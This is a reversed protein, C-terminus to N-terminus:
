RIVSGIVKGYVEVWRETVADWHYRERYMIYGREGMERAMGDDELLSLIARSLARPDKEPVLIGNKGEEVVDPIGGVRSAVIPKRFSMAEVLVVGQGETDGRRDHVAPLCFLRCRRYYAALSGEDVLGAFEVGGDIGLDVALKMWREREPGDGVIALEVRRQEHVLRVARLLYDVGKREVLRGVFLVLDEMPGTTEEPGPIDKLGVSYPIVEVDADGISRIEEATTRTNATMADSSRIVWRLFFSLYPLKNRIWRIGVGHFSSIARAGTLRRGVWAFLFNPFPWHAQFIDYRERRVLRIMGIVGGSLYFPVLVKYLLGKELRVPTAQDHTLVEWRSFFYRFRRVRVGEVTQDKLGRYAPAFVEVDMGRRKLNLITETMWPTIMDRESRKYATVIFLIRLPRNM